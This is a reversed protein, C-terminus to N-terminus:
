HARPRAVHNVHNVADNVSESDQIKALFINKCEGAHESSRTREIDRKNRIMAWEIRLVCVVEHADSAIVKRHFPSASMSLAVAVRAM